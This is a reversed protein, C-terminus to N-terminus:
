VLSICTISCPSPFICQQPKKCSRKVGFICSCAQFICNLCKYIWLYIHLHFDLLNTPQRSSAYLNLTSHTSPNKDPWPLLIAATIKDSRTIAEDSSRVHHAPSLTNFFIISVKQTSLHRPDFPGLDLSLNFQVQHVCIKNSSCM